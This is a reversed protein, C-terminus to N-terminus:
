LELGLGSRTAAKCNESFQAGQLRMSWGKNVDIRCVNVKIKIAFCFFIPEYIVAGSARLLIEDFLIM